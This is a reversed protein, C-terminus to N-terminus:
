SRHYDLTGINKSTPDCLPFALKVYDLALLYDQEDPIWTVKKGEMLCYVEIGHPLKGFAQVCFATTIQQYAYVVEPHYSVMYKHITLRTSCDQDLQWATQFIVSLRM